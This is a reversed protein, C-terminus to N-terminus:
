ESEKSWVTLNKGEARIELGEVHGCEIWKRLCARATSKAQYHTRIGDVLQKMTCGPNEKVFGRAEGCTQQFPTFRRGCCNGAAAFTKHEETLINLITTRRALRNLKPERQEQCHNGIDEFRSVTIIGIGHEKCFADLCTYRRSFPVAVSVYNALGTWHWAQDVVAAGFATKCEVVWVLRNQVAVIDAIRGAYGLQVEQYVTWGQESLWDVVRAALSAEDTFRFSPLKM